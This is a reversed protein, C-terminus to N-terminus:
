RSDGRSVLQSWAQILKAVQFGSWRDDDVIIVEPSAEQVARRLDNGHLLCIARPNGLKSCALQAAYPRASCWVVQLKKTQQSMSSLRGAIVQEDAGAAILEITQQKNVSRVIRSKEDNAVLCLSTTSAANSSNSVTTSSNSNLSNVQRVLKIGKRRLEDVVAPTIVSKRPVQVCTIGVLRDSLSQLTVLRDDVVLTGPAINDASAVSSLKSSAQSASDRPSEASVGASTGSDRLRDVVMRVITELEQTTISM